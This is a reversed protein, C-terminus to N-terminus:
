VIAAPVRGARLYTLAEVGNAAEVVSFRERELMTAVARRLDDHDEVVLITLPTNTTLRHPDVFSADACLRPCITSLSGRWTTRIAHSGCYSWPTHCARRQSSAPSSLSRSTAPSRIRTSSARSRGGM